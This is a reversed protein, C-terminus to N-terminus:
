FAGTGSPTGLGTPGDWGTGATCLLNRCHGNSGSTVDNLNASTGLTYPTSGDSVGSANGALAYISAIIPSSVSTGGFVLWGSVGRYQFSDFVAVGHAPDATASVDAIARHDCVSTLASLSSQWSPQADYKSCGSGSGSWATESWGRGGTVQLLTTGGVATVYPSAAPYQAGYGSDGSSATIAVGSHDFYTDYTSDSRSARGGWSNSIVTAGLAVAEDVAAGLNAMSASSAEVLLIKCKPCIASAMDVDLSIEQAWGGDNRPLTSGGSQNVVTLCGSQSTCAGLGFQARYTGLDSEVTPDNYADVIGITQGTGATSSASTLGYASQLDSPAYGSPAANPVVQGSTDLAESLIADCAAFGSLPVACVPVSRHAVGTPSSAGAIAGVAVFPAAVLLAGLVALNRHVRM